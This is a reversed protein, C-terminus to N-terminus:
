AQSLEKRRLIWIKVEESETQLERTWESELIEPFKCDGPYEKKVETLYITKVYPLAQEYIAAGGLIFPKPDTILAAFIAEILSDFVRCGEIQSATKSVIFNTRGKLPKGISEFTKRGMIVVHGMTTKRFWEMDEKIRPWPLQNANGIVRSPTMAVILSLGSQSM